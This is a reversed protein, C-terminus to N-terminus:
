ETWSFMKGRGGKLLFLFTYDVKASVPLSVPLLDYRSNPTNSSSGCSKETRWKEYFVLPSIDCLSVFGFCTHDYNFVPFTTLITNQALFFQFGSM